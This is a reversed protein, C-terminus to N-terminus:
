VRIPYVNQKNMRDIKPFKDTELAQMSKLFKNEASKLIKNIRYSEQCHSKTEFNYLRESQEGFQISCKMRIFTNLSYGFTMKIQIVRFM